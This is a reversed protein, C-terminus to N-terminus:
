LISGEKIKEFCDYCYIKGLFKVCWDTWTYTRCNQCTCFGDGKLYNVPTVSGHYKIFDVKSYKM